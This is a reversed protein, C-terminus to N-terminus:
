EASNGKKSLRDVDRRLLGEEGEPQDTGKALPDCGRLVREMM